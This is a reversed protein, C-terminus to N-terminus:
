NNNLQKDFITPHLIRLVDIKINDKNIKKCLSKFVDIKFLIMRSSNNDGGWVYRFGKNKNKMLKKTQLYYFEDENPLYYIWVDAKTISLGSQKEEGNIEKKVEVAINGTQECKKDVKVEITKKDTSSNIIIDYDPFLKKDKTTIAKFGSENIINCLYSEIHNSYELDTKFTSTM